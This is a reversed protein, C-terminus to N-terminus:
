PALTLRRLSPLDPVRTSTTKGAAGRPASYASVGKSGSTYHLDM